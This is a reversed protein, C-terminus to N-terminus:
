RQRWSNPPGLILWTLRRLSSSASFARRRRVTDSRVRSLTMKCSAARPFKQAGRAATETDLMDSLLQAGRLATGTLSESLVTRRRALRRLPAPVLGSQGFVDDRQSPVVAAVAIALNGLQQTNLGAPYDVVLPHLADPPTRPELHRGFLRFPPAQPEGVARAHAQPGLMGVVDPAVVEHLVTGM